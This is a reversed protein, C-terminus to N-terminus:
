RCGKYSELYWRGNTASRFVQVRDDGAVYTVSQDPKPSTSSVSWGHQDVWKPPSSLLADLAARATPQGAAVGEDVSAVGACAPASSCGPVGVALVVMAAAGTVCARRM